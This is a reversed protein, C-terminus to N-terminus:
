TAVSDAEAHEEVTAIVGSRFRIMRQNRGNIYMVYSKKGEDHRLYGKEYWASILKDASAFGLEVELIKTLETRFFAVEGNRFKKGYCVQATQTFENDFEPKNVTERMFFKEHSASFDRLSETARATDDIQELTPLQNDLLYRRVRILNTADFTDTVGLMVKFFEFAVLSISLSKLHTPEYQQTSPDRKSYHHYKAQIEQMHEQAFQIWQKAYHGFNAEAFPHLDAAFEDDFLNNHIDLQILRKYAGRLDHQKLIPREGTTLRAGGFKFTERANGDRTNAQNGKGDAFNYVDTSLAEEAKKGQRTELEDYFSPLDCFAAAVLQRNKNTAAFTGILERPNGFISATFKLLATKGGGSTGQLHTQPNSINLPRALTAALATGICLSAVAGGKNVVEIFKRKWLEANGRTALAKDFDFGGRRIIYDNSPYAFTTFTDDTWGTQNYSKVQPIKPNCARLADFFQKLRGVDNIIADYHGLEILQKADTLTRGDVESRIWKDGIRMAIEFEVRHKVPEYFKKTIIIPTKTVPLYDFDRDKKKSPVCQTIGQKTWIFNEPLILNVPCDKIRDRTYVINDNSQDPHLQYWERRADAEEYNFRKAIGHLTEINFSPDTASNWRELNEEENYRNSDRHNWTDVVHYPVGINKCASNVALWDSDPLDAPNIADLMLDARFLDYDNGLDAATKETEQKRAPQRPSLPNHTNPTEAVHNQKAIADLLDQFIEDVVAGQPIPAQADCEYCNGTFLFYRAKTKYFLEIKVDNAKDFLLVGSKGNSIAQFKGKTPKGIFHLGHKSISLECYCGGFKRKIAFYWEKVDESVFNGADNLCHDFDIVLYDEARDHGCTDFGLLRNPNLESFLRQKDPNSWGKPTDTKKMGYLEFFRPQALLEAPLNSLCQRIGGNTTNKVHNNQESSKEGDNAIIKKGEVPADDHKAAAINDETPKIQAADESTDEVVPTQTRKNGRLNKIEEIQAMTWRAKPRGGDDSKVFEAPKIENRRARQNFTVLKLGALKAAEETSYFKDM